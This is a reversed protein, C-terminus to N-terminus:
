DNILHAISPEPTGQFFLPPIDTKLGPSAIFESLLVYYSQLDYSIKPTETTPISHGRIHRYYFTLARVLNSDSMLPIRQFFELELNLLLLETIRVHGIKASIRKVVRVITRRSKGTEAAIQIQSRGQFLLTFVHLELPSLANELEALSENDKPYDEFYKTSM